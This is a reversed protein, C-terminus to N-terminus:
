QPYIFLLFTCETRITNEDVITGTETLGFNLEKKNISIFQWKEKLLSM